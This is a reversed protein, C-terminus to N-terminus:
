KYISIPHLSDQLLHRKLFELGFEKFKNTIPVTLQRLFGISPTSDSPQNLLMSFNNFPKPCIVVVLCRVKFFDFSQITIYILNQHFYNSFFLFLTKNLFFVQQFDYNQHFHILPTISYNWVFTEFFNNNARSLMFSVPVNVFYHIHKNMIM